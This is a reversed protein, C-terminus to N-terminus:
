QAEIIPKGHPCSCPSNLGNYIQRALKNDILYDIKRCEKCAEKLNGGNNFMLTELVRHNFEIRKYEKEGKGTLVITGNADKKVMNKSIMREVLTYATPPKISLMRSLRTLSLGGANKLAFICDREKKTIM